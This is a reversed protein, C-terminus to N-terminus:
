CRWRSRSRRARPGRHQDARRRFHRPSARDADDQTRHVHDGERVSGPAGARLQRATEGTGPPRARHDREGRARGAAPRGHAPRARAHESVRAGPPHEARGERIPGARQHLPLPLDGELSQLADWTQEKFVQYRRRALTEDHDTPRDERLEGVGTRRVEDNHAQTERGRKLQRAISEKEEVFLVMIHITPQRFHIGVAAHQLVRAPARADPRGAAEPVRGAGDHAPLRRHHRRRPVRPAAARPAAPRGGRPRRGHQRRGEASQAEPSDLLASM